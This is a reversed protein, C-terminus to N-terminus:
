FLASGHDVKVNFALVKFYVILYYHVEQIGGSGFDLDSFSLLSANIWIRASLLSDCWTALDHLYDIFTSPISMDSLRVHILRTAARMRDKSGDNLHNLCHLISALKDLGRAKMNNVQCSTLPGFISAGLTLAQLLSTVYIIAQADEPLYYILESFAAWFSSTNSGAVASFNFGLM